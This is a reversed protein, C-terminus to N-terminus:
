MHPPRLLSPRITNPTKPPKVPCSRSSSHRPSRPGCSQSTTSPATTVPGPRTPWPGDRRHKASPSPASCTAKAASSSWAANSTSTTWTLTSIESLRAGTDLLLRIIATDRRAAFSKGKCTDLLSTLEDDSLVPVLKEPQNPKTLKAMPRRDIEEEDLRYKFFQQLSKYKNLATPASRTDIMRAIFWEVHKREVDTPDQVADSDDHGAM